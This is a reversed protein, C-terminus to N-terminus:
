TKELWLGQMHRISIIENLHHSNHAVQDHIYAYTKVDVIPLPQELKEYPLASVYLALAHNAALVGAKAQAWAAEDRALRVPPWAGEAFFINTDVADSCLVSLAFQQCITLHLTVGWVSNLRLGPACSAQEATLGDVASPYSNFLLLDPNSFLRELAEALHSSESM